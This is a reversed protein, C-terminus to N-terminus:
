IMIALMLGMTIGMAIGCSTAVRPAVWTVALSYHGGSGPGSLQDLDWVGYGVLILTFVFALAPLALTGM